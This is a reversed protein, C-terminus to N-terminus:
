NNQLNSEKKKIDVFYLALNYAVNVRLSLCFFEACRIQLCIENLPYFRSQFVNKKRFPM